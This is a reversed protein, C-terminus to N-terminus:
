FVESIWVFFVFIFILTGKSLPAKTNVFGTPPTIQGWTSACVAISGPLGQKISSRPDPEARPTAIRHTHSSRSIGGV